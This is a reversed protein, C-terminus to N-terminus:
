PRSTAKSSNGALTRVLIAPKQRSGAVNLTSQARLEGTGQLVGGGYAGPVTCM